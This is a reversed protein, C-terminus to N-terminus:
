HSHHMCDVDPPFLMHRLGTRSERTNVGSSEKTVDLWVQRARRMPPTISRVSSANSTGRVASAHCVLRFPVTRVPAFSARAMATSAPFLATATPTVSFKLGSNGPSGALADLSKVTALSDAASPVSSQRASILSGSSRFECPKPITTCGSPPTTAAPITRKLRVLPRKVTTFSAPELPASSQRASISPSAPLSSWASATVMSEAPSTSAAPNTTLVAPPSSRSTIFILPLLPLMSQVRCISVAFPSSEAAARMASALSSTTTAAVRSSSKPTTLSEPSVPDTIQDLRISLWGPLEPAALAIARFLAPLTTTLPM